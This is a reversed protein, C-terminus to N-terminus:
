VNSVSQDKCALEYAQNLEECVDSLVCVAKLADRGPMPENTILNIAKAIRDIQIEYFHKTM